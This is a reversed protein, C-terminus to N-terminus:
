ERVDEHARYDWDIQEEYEEGENFARRDYSGKGKKNKLWYGRRRFALLGQVDEKSMKQENKNRKMSIKLREVAFHATSLIPLM